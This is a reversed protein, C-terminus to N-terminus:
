DRYFSDVSSIQGAAVNSHGDSWPNECAVGDHDADLDYDDPGVVQFPGTVFLPGNGDEGVCDIDAARLPLCVGKYSPHCTAAASPAILDGLAAVTPHAGLAAFTAAAAAAFLLFALAAFKM